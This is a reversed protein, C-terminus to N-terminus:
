LFDYRISLSDDDQHQSRPHKQIMEVRLGEIQKLSKFVITSAIGVPAVLIMDPMDWITVVIHYKMFPIVCVYIYIHIYTYIHKRRGHYTYIYIYTYFYKKNM